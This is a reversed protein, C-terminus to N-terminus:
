GGPLHSKGQRRFFRDATPSRTKRGRGPAGAGGPNSADGDLLIVEYGRRQLENAMLTIISSKGSGGKGCVLIRKGLLSKM